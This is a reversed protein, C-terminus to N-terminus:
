EKFDFETKIKKILKVFKDPARTRNYLWNEIIDDNFDLFNSYLLCDDEGMSHSHIQFFNGLYFDMEKTGRRSSKYFLKKKFSDLESM